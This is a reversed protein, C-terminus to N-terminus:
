FVIIVDFEAVLIEALPWDLYRFRNEIVERQGKGFVQPRKELGSYVPM